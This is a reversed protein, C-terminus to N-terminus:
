GGEPFFASSSLRLLVPRLVQLGRPRPPRQCGRRAYSRAGGDATTRALAAVFTTTAETMDLQAGEIVTFPTAATAASTAVAVNAEMNQKATLRKASGTRVEEIGGRDAIWIHLKAPDFHPDEKVVVELVRAYASVCRRDAGFVYRVVRGLLGTTKKFKFGANTCEARFAELQPRKGCMRQYADLCKALLWYLESNLRAYAGAFWEDHAARVAIIDTVPSGLNSGEAAAPAAAADATKDHSVVVQTQAKQAAADAKLAATAVKGNKM